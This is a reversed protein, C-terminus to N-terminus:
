SACLRCAPHIADMCITAPYPEKRYRVQSRIFNCRSPSPIAVEISQCISGPWRKRVMCLTDSSIILRLDVFPVSITMTQFPAASLLAKSNAQYDISTRPSHFSRSLLKVVANGTVAGAVNGSGSEPSGRIDDPSVWGARLQAHKQLSLRQDIAKKVDRRKQHYEKSVHSRVTIASSVRGGKGVSVWQLSSPSPFPASVNRSNRRNDQINEDEEEGQSRLSM